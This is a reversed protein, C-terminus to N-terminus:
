EAGPAKAEWDQRLQEQLALIGGLSKVHMRWGRQHLDELQVRFEEIWQHSLDHGPESVLSRTLLLPRLPQGAAVKLLAPTFLSEATLLHNKIAEHAEQLQVLAHEYEEATLSGYERLFHEVEDMRTQQEIIGQLIAQLQLQFDLRDLLEQTREPGLHLSVHLHAVAVDHDFAALRPRDAKLEADVRQILAEVESLPFRQGRFEVQGDPPRWDGHSVEALTHFEDRRRVHAEVWPRFDSGYLRDLTQRIRAASWPEVTAALVRLATISGPELWRDDYLGHYRADFTTEAREEDIHRQVTTPDSLEVGSTLMRYGRYYTRTVRERLREPNRFVAWAPREDRPSRFYRRKANREREANPPHTAWMEPATRAEADFVQTTRALDDPLPPPEGRHPDGHFKRLWAAACQQHYFLDRTMLRHSAALHLERLALDVTEDAFDLRALAHVIADSGAVSVAVLDANFEMQRSLEAHWFNITRFLGALFARVCWLLGRFLAVVLTLRFVPHELEAILQDFWDRGYVVDGLVQNSVYVYSGLKMSKQSFHGFEHALVAKLEVLTLANVLGLGLILNKRVPWVLGLVSRHYCVAANVEPTILVRRPFPARTETCVMRLFAFLEPQEAETIEIAAFEDVPHRRFLGKVLFLCLLGAILAVAGRLLLGLPGLEQAPTAVVWWAVYAAAVILGLYILVFFILCVLVVLVRVRYDRTPATLDEPIGAPRPPYPLAAYDM